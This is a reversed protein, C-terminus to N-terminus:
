FDRRGTSVRISRQRQTQSDRTQDAQLNTRREHTNRETRITTCMGSVRYEVPGAEPQIAFSAPKRWLFNSFMIGRANNWLIRSILAEAARSAVAPISSAAILM